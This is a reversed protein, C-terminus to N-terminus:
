GGNRQFVAQVTTNTGAVQYTITILITSNAATVDLQQLVARGALWTQIAQTLMARALTTTTEDLGAFLLRRAGGGFEPLFLREGPNTLVLQMLEQRVQEELTDASLARGDNGIGFPFSLHKGASATM